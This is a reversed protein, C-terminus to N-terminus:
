RVPMHFKTPPSRAAVEGYHKCGKYVELSNIILCKYIENLAVRYEFLYWDQVFYYTRSYYDRYDQFDNPQIKKVKGFPQMKHSFNENGLFFM